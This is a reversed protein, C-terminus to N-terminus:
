GGKIKLTFVGAVATGAAGLVSGIVKWSRAEMKDMREVVADIRLNTAAQKAEIEARPVFEALMAVLQGHRADAAAQMAKQREDLRALSTAIRESATADLGIDTSVTM